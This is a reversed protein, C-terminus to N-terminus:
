PRFRWHFFRIFVPPLAFLSLLAASIIGGTMAAAMSRQSSGLPAIVLPLLALITTITTILVPCLRERAGSFVAKAPSLGSRLKEEGIEYLIIGNNVVLGFLVTLGLAAGSDLNAGSLFLAPGTGALSFPIALMLILPLLFSEFQAGMTMYLLILVLVLTLFLSARYRTFASEDMRSLWPLGAAAKQIGASFGKGGGSVPLLDLYIVDGRDLRALAAESERREVRGLSGLFVRNGQPTLLPIDALASEPEPGAALTKGSVRVDLPRGEIELRSSIVGETITYLAEAVGAASVGLYAAAERHPFFRLEPRAGSPRTHFSALSPGLKKELQDAAGRARELTETRDTGRIALTHASSLGLLRETRDQPFSASFVTGEPLPPEL